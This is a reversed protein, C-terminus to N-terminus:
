APLHMLRYRLTKPAAERLEGEPLALHRFCALLNTALAVVQTWAVNIAWRRSPWRNLGLDKAQKVDNEVHVHSRHRADRWAVQRGEHQHRHAPLPTRAAEGTRHGV